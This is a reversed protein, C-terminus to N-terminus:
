DGGWALAERLARSGAKGQKVTGDQGGGESGDKKSLSVFGEHRVQRFGEPGAPTSGFM